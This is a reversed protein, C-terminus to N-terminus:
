APARGRACWLGFLVAALRAGAWHLGILVFAVSPIGALIAGIVTRGPPMSLIGATGAACALWAVPGSVWGWSEFFSHPLLLALAVSAVAVLGLQILTARFFLARDFRSARLDSDTM